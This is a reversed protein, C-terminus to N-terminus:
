SDHPNSCFFLISYKEHSQWVCLICCTGAVPKAFIIMKQKDKELSLSQFIKANGQIGVMFTLVFEEYLQLKKHM